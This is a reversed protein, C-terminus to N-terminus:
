LKEITPLWDRFWARFEEMRRSEDRGLPAAHPGIQIGRLAVAERYAIPFPFMAARSVFEAVSAELRTCDQGAVSGREIAVMLEPIVSATGSIAGTAGASRARRYMNDSGIYIALGRDRTIREMEVFNGWNGSSDKIGAFAGTSLLDVATALEIESTFPPINYLYIAGKVQAAVELFFARVSEQSYRFYYPPAVLVGAAGAELSQQALNITGDLTSHTANALVPLRSRKAAMTVLRIRDEAEFHLFEGTSGLLAIGAAGRDALFDILELSASLEISVGSVRRPTVAAPLIGQVPPASM